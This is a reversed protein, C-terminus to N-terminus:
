LGNPENTRVIAWLGALALVGGVGYQWPIQLLLYIAVGLVVLLGCLGVITRATMAGVKGM